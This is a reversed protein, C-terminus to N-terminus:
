GGLEGMKQTRPAGENRIRSILTNFIIQIGTCGVSRQSIANVANSASSVKCSFYIRGNLRGRLRMQGDDMRM